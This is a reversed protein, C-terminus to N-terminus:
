GYIFLNESNIDQVVTLANIVVVFVSPLRVVDVSHKAEKGCESGEVWKEMSLGTKRCNHCQM